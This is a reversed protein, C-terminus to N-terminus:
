QQFWIVYSDRVCFVEDTISSICVMYPILTGHPADIPDLKLYTHGNPGTPPFRLARVSGDPMTIQLVPEINPLPLNGEYIGVAIEQSQQAGIVPQREWVQLSITTLSQTDEFDPSTPDFHLDKYPYGLAQLRIRREEPINSQYHYEVCLNLYCQRYIGDRVFALETIPPGSVEIGGHLTIYDLFVQPVNYGLDGEISYFYFGPTEDPVTPPDPLIGLYESLPRLFVRSPNDPHTYLVLNQYVQEISGDEAIYVGTIPFGTYDPGLRSVADHFHSSIKSAMNYPLDVVAHSPPAVRCYHDCKWAGLALLYVSEPPDTESWFFAVNEFYQEFRKKSANYHMETIPKGVFRAGGLRDYLRGFEGPIIHGNIYLVGPDSPPSVPPDNVGLELGLPSLRFAQSSPETMDYELCGSWVYQYKRNEHSFLPSIAPGLVNNGGMHEYFERFLPDVSYAGEPTPLLVRQEQEFGCGAAFFFVALFVIWVKRTRINKVAM